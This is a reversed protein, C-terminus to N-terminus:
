REITPNKANFLAQMFIKWTQPLKGNELLKQLLTEDRLYGRPILKTKLLEQRLAKASEIIYDKSDINRVPEIVEGLSINDMFVLSPKSRDTPYSFLINECFKDIVLSKVVRNEIVADEINTLIAVRQALFRM